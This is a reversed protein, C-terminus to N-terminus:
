CKYQSVSCVTISYLILLTLMSTSLNTPLRCSGALSGCPKDPPVQFTTHVSHM